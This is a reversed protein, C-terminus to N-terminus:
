ARKYAHFCALMFDSITMDREAAAVKIARVEERPLRVQLPVQDAKLEPKVAEKAPAPTCAPTAIKSTPHRVKLVEATQGYTKAMGVKELKRM